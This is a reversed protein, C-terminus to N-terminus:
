RAPMQEEAMTEKCLGVCENCIHRGAWRDAQGGPQEGEWLVLVEGLWRDVEPTAAPPRIRSSSRRVPASWHLRKGRGHCAQPQPDALTPDLCTWELWADFIELM